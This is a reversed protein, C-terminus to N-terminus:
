DGKTRVKKARELDEYDPQMNLWGGLKCSDYVDKRVNVNRVPLPRGADDYPEVTITWRDPEFFTYPVMITTTTKGDSITMPMMIIETHAAIFRKSTVIGSPPPGSCGGMTLFLLVGLVLFMILTPMGFCLLEAAYERFWARM